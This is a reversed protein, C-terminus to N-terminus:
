VNDRVTVCVCDSRHQRPSSSMRTSRQALSQSVRGLRHRWTVLVLVSHAGARHYLSLSHTLSIMM